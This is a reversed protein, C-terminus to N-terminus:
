KNGDLLATRSVVIMAGVLGYIFWGGTSTLSSIVWMHVSMSVFASFTAAAWLQGHRTLAIAARIGGLALSALLMGFPLAGILGTESLFSMYSNHASTSDFHEQPAYSLVKPIDLETSSKTFRGPGVGVIPSEEFLRLSKQNMLQRIMYSKEEELNSFTSFRGEVAGAISDSAFLVGLFAGVALILLVLMGGFKGPKSFMLVILFIIAGISIAVWSGRSGNIAAAGWLALNAGIAALKRLGKSYLLFGLSFPAFMSFLIGYTNQTMLHTGSWAGINGYVLVEAWRLLALVLVSWGLVKVVKESLRAQSVFVTTGFFVLLWYAYRIIYQISSRDFDIGGSLVGNFLASIAVGMWILIALTRWTGYQKFDQGKRLFIELAILFFVPASLSLGMLPIDVLPLVMYASFFLLLSISFNSYLAKREIEPQKITTHISNEEYFKM